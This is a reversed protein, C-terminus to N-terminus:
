NRRTAGLIRIAGYAGIITAASYAAIMGSLSAAVIVPHNAYWCLLSVMMADNWRNVRNLM